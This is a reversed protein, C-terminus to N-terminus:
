VYHYIVLVFHYKKDNNKIYGFALAIQRGGAKIKNIKM